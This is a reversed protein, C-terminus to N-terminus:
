VEPSPAVPETDTLTERSFVLHAVEKPKRAPSLFSLVYGGALTGMSGVVFYWLWHIKLVYTAFITAAAGFLAGAVVGVNNARKSLMGLLFMGLLPGAFPSMLKNLIAFITEKGGLLASVLIVAVGWALTVWKAQRVGEQDSTPKVKGFRKIFDIYTATSLSNLGASFSSMTGAFLGAIVVAGLAGPLGHTVFHAMVRNADTLGAVWEYGPQNLFRYYYAVLFIGAGYLGAMVPLNILGGAVLSVAMKKRSGAALYRQVLVQDSGLAGIGSLLGNILIIWMTMEFFGTGLNFLRTHDGLAASRSVEQGVWPVKAVAPPHAAIRWIAGFDWSFAMAVGVLVAVIGGMLVFFQAVDTWLVAKMGGLVTYLTTLGGLVLIGVWVPIDMIAAMALAAAYLAVALHTGRTLMFLASAFTRVGVNFRHELYEYATYLKLRALFPVFIMAVFLAAFPYVVAQLSFQLDSTFVIAACGMYSIASTDSSIISIAVAWPPASREALYYGEVNKQRKAFWLGLTVSGLVYIVVIMLQAMSFHAQM